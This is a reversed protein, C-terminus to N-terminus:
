KLKKESCTEDIREEKDDDVDGEEECVGDDSRDEEKYVEEACRNKDSRKNRM